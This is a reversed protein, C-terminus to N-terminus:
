LGTYPDTFSERIRCVVLMAALISGASESVLGKVIKTHCVERRGEQTSLQQNKGPLRRSEKRWLEGLFFSLNTPHFNAMVKSLKPNLHESSLSKIIINYFKFIIWMSQGGVGGASIWM